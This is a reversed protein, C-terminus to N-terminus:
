IMSKTTAFLLSQLFSRCESYQQPPIEAIQSKMGEVMAAINQRLQRQDASDLGGYKRWKAVCKDVAARQADYQAEQLAGPWFLTGTAPDIQSASLGRPAAAVARATADKAGGLHAQEAERGAHGADRLAYFTRVQEVRNRLENGQAQTMNVAAASTALNYQAAANALEAAGQLAAGPATQGLGDFDEVPAEVPFAGSGLSPLSFGSTAASYGLGPTYSGSNLSTVGLTAPTISGNQALLTSSTPLQPAFASIEQAAFNYAQRYTLRPNQALIQSALVGTANITNGIQAAVQATQGLGLISGQQLSLKQNQVALQGALTFTTQNPAVLQSAVASNLLNAQQQQAFHSRNPWAFQASYSSQRTVNVHNTSHGSWTGPGNAYTTNIGSFSLALVAATAAKLGCPRM